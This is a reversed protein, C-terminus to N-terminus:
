KKEEKLGTNNLKGMPEQAREHLSKTMCTTDPIPEM